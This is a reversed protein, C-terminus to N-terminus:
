YYGVKHTLICGAVHAMLMTLFQMWGSNNATKSLRMKCTPEDSDDFRPIWPTLSMNKDSHKHLCFNIKMENKFM